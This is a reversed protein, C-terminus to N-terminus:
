VWGNQSPEQYEPINGETSESIRTVNSNDKEQLKAKIAAVIPTGTLLEAVLHANERYNQELKIILNKNRPQRIAEEFYRNLSDKYVKEADELLMKHTRVFGIRTFENLWVQNSEERMLKDKLRYYHRKSLIHGDTEVEIYKIAEPYRLNYTICDSVLKQYLLAKKSL